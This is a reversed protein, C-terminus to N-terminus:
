TDGLRLIEIEVRALGSSVFGLQKAAQKSLDLLRKSHSHNRDNVRVKVSRHNKLNTVRLLTGFPLTAHVATLGNKNYCEGSATRRGHFKDSYFSAIGIKKAAVSSHKAAKAFGPMCLLALFIPLMTKSVRQWFRM